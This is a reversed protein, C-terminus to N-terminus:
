DKMKLSWRPKTADCGCIGLWSAIVQQACDMQADWYLERTSFVRLMRTHQFRVELTTRHVSEASRSVNFNEQAIEGQHVWESEWVIKIDPAFRAFIAVVEQPEEPRKRLISELSRRNQNILQAYIWEPDDAASFTRRRFRRADKRVPKM